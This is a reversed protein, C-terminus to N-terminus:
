LITPIIEMVGRAVTAAEGNVYTVKAEHYFNGGLGVTDEPDLQVEFIRAAVDIIQIGGPSATSSKQITAEGDVPVIEMKSFRGKIAKWEITAGDLNSEDSVDLNEVTFRLTRSNGAKIEFNVYVDDAV